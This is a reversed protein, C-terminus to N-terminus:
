QRQWAARQKGCRGHKEASRCAQRKVKCAGVHKGDRAKCSGIIPCGVCDVM